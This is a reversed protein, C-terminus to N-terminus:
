KLKSAKDVLTAVRDKLKGEDVIAAASSGVKELELSNGIEQKGDVFIYPIKKEDCLPPLYFVIEPPDVDTAILVIKAQGREIAKTVENAGKRVKGGSKIVETVLELAENQMEKPTEFTIYSM